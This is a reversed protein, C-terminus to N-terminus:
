KKRYQKRSTPNHNTRTKGKQGLFLERIKNADSMDIEDLNFEPEKVVPNWRAHGPMESDGNHVKKIKLLETLVSEM